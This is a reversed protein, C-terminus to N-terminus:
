MFVGPCFSHCIVLIQTLLYLSYVGAVKVTHTNDLKILEGVPDTNGYFSAALSESLLISSPDKLGDRTGYHMQLGLMHTVEPEFYYGTKMLSKNGSSLIIRNPHSAMLVHTFDHGYQSRLANGLPPLPLGPRIYRAM